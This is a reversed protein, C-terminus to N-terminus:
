QSFFSRGILSLLTLHRLNPCCTAIKPEGHPSHLRHGELSSVRVEPALLGRLMKPARGDAWFFASFASFASFPMKENAPKGIMPARGQSKSLCFTVKGLVMLGAEIAPRM